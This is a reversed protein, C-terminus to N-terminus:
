GLSGEVLRCAECIRWRFILGYWRTFRHGCTVPPQYSRVYRKAIRWAEYRNM